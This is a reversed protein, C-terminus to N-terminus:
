IKEHKERYLFDWIAGILMGTISALFGGLSEPIYEHPSYMMWIWVSFGLFM